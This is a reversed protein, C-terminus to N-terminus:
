DLVGGLVARGVAGHAELRGAKAVVHRANDKVPLREELLVAVALLEHVHDRLAAHNRTDLHVLAVVLGAKRARLRAREAVRLRPALADVVQVLARGLYACPARKALHLFTRWISGSFPM